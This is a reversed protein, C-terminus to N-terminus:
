GSRPFSRTQTMWGTLLWTSRTQRFLFRFTITVRASKQWYDAKDISGPSGTIGPAAARICCFGTTQFPSGPKTGVRYRVEPVVVTGSLDMCRTDFPQAMLAGDHVFLLSAPTRAIGPRLSREYGRESAGQLHNFGTLRCSHFVRRPSFQGCPILLPPRRTPVSSFCARGRRAGSRAFDRAPARWRGGGSPPSHRKASPLFRHGRGYEM